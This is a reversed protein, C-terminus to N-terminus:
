RPPARVADLIAEAIKRGGRGSPEIPNAYDAATDCVDRLEIVFLGLENATRQIADNFMALAIRAATAVPRDLRGNYITCVFTPREKAVVRDITARYDHRFRDVHPAFTELAAIMSTVRMTLLGALQLVDNGGISVVLHSADAPLHRLQAAVGATTAGDIAYSTARWHGPLIRGLHTVVDPDGLTYAGNDFISDGILVIHPHPSAM